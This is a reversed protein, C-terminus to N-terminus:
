MSKFFVQYGAALTLIKEIANLDLCMIDGPLKWDDILRLLVQEVGEIYNYLYYLNTVLIVLDSQNMSVNEQPPLQKGSLDLCYGHEM